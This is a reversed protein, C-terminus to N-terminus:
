GHFEEIEPEGILFIDFRYFAYEKLVAKLSTIHDQISDAEEGSEVVMTIKFKPKM